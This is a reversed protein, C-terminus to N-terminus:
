RSNPPSDYKASPETASQYVNRSISSFANFRSMAMTPPNIPVKAAM